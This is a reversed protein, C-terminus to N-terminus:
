LIFRFMYNNIFLDPVCRLIVSIGRARWLKKMNTRAFFLVLIILYKIFSINKM